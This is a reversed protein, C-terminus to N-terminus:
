YIKEYLEQIKEKVDDILELGEVKDIMNKIDQVDSEIADLMDMAAKQPIYGENVDELDVDVTSIVEWEIDRRYNGSM